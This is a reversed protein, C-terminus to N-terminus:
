EDLLIRVHDAALRALCPLCYGGELVSVMRGHCLRHAMAHIVRFVAAYGADTLAMDAMEDNAHADFGTSVLVFEPLFDNMVPILDRRIRYEYEADSSGPPMPANKTAGVGLGKGEEFERGTGPFAFSPHEHISYYFVTPDEEFLAQTGNGHHVDIDVIAIRSLKWKKQLYRAAVAVNNFFCFGLASSRGAHHGPPRVACFANRVRGRMVLDTAKLVAGVALKAVEFTEKGMANDSHGFYPEGSKCAQKFKQIYSRDHVAELWKMGAPRATRILLRDLLGANKIGGYLAGLRQACEPHSWGTDHLLFRRDYLLATHNRAPGKPSFWGM